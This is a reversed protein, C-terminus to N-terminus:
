RANLEYKGLLELLRNDLNNEHVNKIIYYEEDNKIYGRKIVKKDIGKIENKISAISILGSNILRSNIETSYEEPLHSLWTLMDSLGIKLSAFKQSGKQKEVENLRKLVGHDKHNLLAALDKNREILFSLIAEFTSKYLQYNNSNIM